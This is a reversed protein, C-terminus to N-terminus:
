SSLYSIPELVGLRRGRDGSCLSMGSVRALLRGGSEITKAEGVVGTGSSAGSKDLSTFGSSSFFSGTALHSGTRHGHGLAGVTYVM